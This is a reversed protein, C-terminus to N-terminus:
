ELLFYIAENFYKNINTKLQDHNHQNDNPQLCSEEVNIFPYAKTRIRLKIMMRKIKIETIVSDLVEVITRLFNLKKLKLILNKLSLISYSQFLTRSIIIKRNNLNSINCRIPFHELFQLEIHILFIQM